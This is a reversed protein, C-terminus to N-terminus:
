WNIGLCDRELSSSLIPLYTTTLFFLIGHNKKMVMAAMISQIIHSGIILQSCECVRVLSILKFIRTCMSHLM